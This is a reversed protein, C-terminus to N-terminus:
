AAQVQRIFWERIGHLYGLVSLREPNHPANDHWSIQMWVQGGLQVSPSMINPLGAGGLRKLDPDVWFLDLKEAPYLAGIKLAIRVPAPAFGVPVPYGPVVLLTAGAEELAQSDPYKRAVAAVERQVRPSRM